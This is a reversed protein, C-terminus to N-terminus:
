FGAYMKLVRHLCGAYLYVKSVPCGCVNYLGQVESIWNWCVSDAPYYFSFASQILFFWSSDLFFILFFFFWSPLSFWCPLLWWNEAEATSSSNKRLSRLSLDPLCPLVGSCYKSLCASLHFFPYRLFVISQAPLGRTNETRETKM